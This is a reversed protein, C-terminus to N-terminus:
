GGAGAVVASFTLPTMTGIDYTAPKVQYGLNWFLEGSGHHDRILRNTSAFQKARVDDGLSQQWGFEEDIWPKNHSGCFASVKAVFDVMRGYTKIDCVANDPLAFIAQWDIGSDLM